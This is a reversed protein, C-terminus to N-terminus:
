MPYINASSHHMRLLFVVDLVHTNRSTAYTASALQVQFATAVKSAALTSSTCQICAFDRIHDAYDAM